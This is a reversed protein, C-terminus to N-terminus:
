LLMEKLAILSIFIIMVPYLELLYHKFDKFIKFRQFQFLSDETHVWYPYRDGM